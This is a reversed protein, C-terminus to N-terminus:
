APSTRRPLTPSLPPSSLTCCAAFRNSLLPAPTVAAQTSPTQSTALVPTVVSRTTTTSTSLTAQVQSTTLSRSSVPNAVTTSLSSHSTSSSTTLSSTTSTAAFLRSTTSTPSSTTAGPSSTPAAQYRAARINDRKRRRESKRKRPFRNPQYPPFPQHHDHPLHRAEPNGLRYNLQLEAQGNNVFINMRAQGSRCSWVNIIDRVNRFLFAEESESFHIIITTQRKFDHAM